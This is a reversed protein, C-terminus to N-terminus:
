KFSAGRSPQKSQKLDKSKLEVMLKQNKMFQTSAEGGFVKDLKFFLREILGGEFGESTKGTLTPSHEQIAGGVKYGAFGAAGVLGAKGLMSGVGKLGGGPAGPLGGGMDSANVVFVNQVKEGTISEMAKAKAMGGVLGGGVGRLGAGALVAALVGGGLVVSAAGETSESAKSLGGTIMEQIEAFPGSISGKIKNLNAKFAESLGMSNRYQENLSGTSSTMADQVKRVRDLNESLRVFGEAAEDTLGLTKAAMRPDGGVRELVEKSAKQFKDIDIGKETFVDKFGQAELAKRQIGSKGLFEELFKISGPGAVQGAGALKALGGTGISKRLDSSMGSFIKEMNALIDGPKKGTAVFAKRVDEMVTRMQDPDNTDGGRAQIVRAVGGAISGEKGTQGSISALKGAEKAYEILAKEGRVPTDALGELTNTAAESSLGIDGLGQVM